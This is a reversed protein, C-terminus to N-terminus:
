PNLPAIRKSTHTVPGQHCVELIGEKELYYFFDFSRNFDSEFVLSDWPQDTLRSNLLSMIVLVSFHSILHHLLVSGHNASKYRSIAPFYYPIDSALVSNDLVYLSSLINDILSAHADAVRTPLCVSPLTGLSLMM